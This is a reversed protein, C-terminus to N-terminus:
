FFNVNAIKHGAFIMNLYFLRDLDSAHRKAIIEVARSKRPCRFTIVPRDEGTEDLDVGYQTLLWDPLLTKYIAHKEEDPLNNIERISTPWVATLM